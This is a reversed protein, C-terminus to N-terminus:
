VTAVRLPPVEGYLGTSLTRQEDELLDRRLQIGYGALRPELSDARARLDRRTLQYAYECIMRRSKCSFVNAALLRTDAGAPEFLLLEKGPYDRAYQSVGNQMRSHVLTRYAQQLLGPMGSRTLEEPGMSGARVAAGADVPVLPNVALVLDAGDEFAVSAHLGKRLTGDVYSREGIRVPLYLGPSAMSAQIAKSIPVETFGPGGFSVAETSDVDTAVVYLKRNLQRFDNTRGLMSFSRQLYDQLSENDFLGVPAAQALVTLAELVSQDYPNAVLRRVATAMLGPLALLRKGFERFAPRYFVEPRFPHVETENRVFIRCLQATTVQNALNAAVFAGANVGVYVDLRNFDLGELAEDLARLAGIEYLGGFPGGGGLALGIRRDAQVESHTAM